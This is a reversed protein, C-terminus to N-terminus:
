RGENTSSIYKGSSTKKKRKKEGAIFPAGGRANLSSHPKQTSTLSTYLKKGCLTLHVIFNAFLPALSFNFSVLYFFTKKRSWSFLKKVKKKKTNV